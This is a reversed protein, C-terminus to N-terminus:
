HFDLDIKEVKGLGLRGLARHEPPIAEVSVWTQITSDFEFHLM